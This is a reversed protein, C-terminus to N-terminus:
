LSTQLLQPLAGCMRLMLSCPSLEQFWSFVVLESRHCVSFREKKRFVLKTIKARLIAKCLSRWGATQLWMQLNNTSRYYFLFLFCFFFFFFAVCYNLRNTYWKNRTKWKHVAFLGVFALPDKAMIPQVGMASLARWYHVEYKYKNSPAPDLAWLQLYQLSPFYSIM